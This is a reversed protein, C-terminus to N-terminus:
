WQQGNAKRQQHDQLLEDFITNQQEILEQQEEPDTTEQIRDELDFYTAEKDIREFHNM